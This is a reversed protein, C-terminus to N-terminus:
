FVCLKRLCKETASHADCFCGNDDKALLGRVVSTLPGKGGSAQGLRSREVITAISRLIM